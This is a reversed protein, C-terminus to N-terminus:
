EMYADFYEGRDRGLSLSTSLTSIHKSLEASM